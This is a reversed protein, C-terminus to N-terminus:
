AEPACSFLASRVSMLRPATRVTQRSSATASHPTRAQTRRPSSSCAPATKARVAADHSFSRKVLFTRLTRAYWSLAQDEWLGLCTEIGDNCPEFTATTDDPYYGPFDVNPLECNHTPTLYTLDGASNYGCQKAGQADCNLQLVDLDARPRSALDDAVRVIGAASDCAVCTHSPM